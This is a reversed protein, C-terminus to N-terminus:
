IQKIDEKARLKKADALPRDPSILKEAIDLLNKTNISSTDIDLTKFKVINESKIDLKQGYIDHFRTKLIFILMTEKMEGKKGKGQMKELEEPIIGTIHAKVILEFFHLSKYFGIEKSEAFDEHAKCWDYLTVRGIRVKGQSITYLKSIFSEFSYGSGM